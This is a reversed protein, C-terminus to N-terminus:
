VFQVHSFGFGCGPCLERWRRKAEGFKNCANAFIWPAARLTGLKRFFCRSRRRLGAIYHRLDTNANETIRTDSKGRVNRRHRGVFDADLCAMGGDTFYNEVAPAMDVMGQITRAKMPVEARFAAIQRPFRSVMTM